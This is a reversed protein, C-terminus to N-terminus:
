CSIGSNGGCQYYCQTWCDCDIELCDLIVLTLSEFQCVEQPVSGTMSNTNFTLERLNSLSALEQPVAGTLQNREFNLVTLATLSGIHTPVFGALSNSDLRLTQLNRLNGISAPIPGTMRNNGFDLNEITEALLSLEDPLSGQVRNERLLLSVVNASNDCVVGYWDCVSSGPELWGDSDIWRDVNASGFALTALAFRQVVASEAQGVTAPDSELWALAQSQSSNPDQLASNSAPSRSLITDRVVSTVLPVTPAPTTTVVATASPSTTELVVAVSSPALTPSRTRRVIPTPTPGCNNCTTRCLEFAENGRVCLRSQFNDNDSLWACDRFGRNVSVFFPISITDPITCAASPSATPQWSVSPGASPEITPPPSTTPNATPSLTTPTQTNDQAIPSRTPSKTSKRKSPAASPALTSVVPLSNAAPALTSVVPLSNVPNGFVPAVTPASYAGLPTPGKTPLGYAGLPEGNTPSAVPSPVTPQAPILVTPVSPTPAQQQQQASVSSDDQAKNAAILSGVAVSIALVMIIILLAILRELRCWRRRPREDAMAGYAGKTKGSATPDMQIVGPPGHNEGTTSAYEPFVDEYSSTLIGTGGGATSPSATKSTGVPSANKRSKSIGLIQMSRGAMNRLLSDDSNVGTLVSDDMESFDGGVSSAMPAWDGQGQRYPNGNHNGPVTHKGPTAPIYNNLIDSFSDLSGDTHNGNLEHNAGAMGYAALIQREQTEVARSRAPDADQFGGLQTVSVGDTTYIGSISDDDDNQQLSRIQFPAAAATRTTALDSASASFPAAPATTASPPALAQADNFLNSAGGDTTYIGSVSEDDTAGKMM